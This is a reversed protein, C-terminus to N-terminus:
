TAAGPMLITLAEPVVEFTAPLLGALEGDLEFFIPTGPREPAFVAKCTEMRHVDGLPRRALLAVGYILYRLRHHSRFLSLGFGPRTVSQQPATRFWGAYRSTRQVIAFTAGVMQGDAQCVVPPFKYRMVQRLSEIVYAAVGFSMKFQAGLRYIVYADFGVGAVSLFYREITQAGNSPSLACGKARGLAIRRPQWRPLERAARVPHCPINLDRAIINATGGPLIGLPVCSPSLGNIVEHITGDGGCVIM